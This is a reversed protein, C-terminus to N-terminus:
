SYMIIIYEQHYTCMLNTLQDCIAICQEAICQKISQGSTARSFRGYEQTNVHYQMYLRKVSHTVPDCNVELLQV